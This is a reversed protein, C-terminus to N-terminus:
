EELERRVDVEHEILAECIIAQLRDFFERRDTSELFLCRSFVRELNVRVAAARDAASTIM